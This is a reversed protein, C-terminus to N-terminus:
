KLQLNCVKNINKLAKAQKKPKDRYDYLLCKIQTIIRKEAEETMNDYRDVFDYYGDKIKDPINDKHANIKTHILKASQTRITDIADDASMTLFRGNQHYHVLNSSPTTSYVTQNEPCRDDFYVRKYTGLLGSFHTNALYILEELTIHELTENGFNVLKVPMNININNTINTTTNNSNITTNNTTNNPTTNPATPIQTKKNNIKKYEMIKNDLDQKQETLNNLIKCREKLHKNLSDKRTFKYDCYSCTLDTVQKNKLRYLKNYIKERKKILTDIDVIDIDAKNKELIIEDQQINKCSKKSSVHRVYGCKYTFERKCDSCIFM